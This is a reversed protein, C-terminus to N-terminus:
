LSPPHSREWDRMSDVFATRLAAPLADQFLVILTEIGDFHKSYYEMNPPRKEWRAATLHALRKHLNLRVEEADRPKPTKIKPFKAGFEPLTRRFHGVGVGDERTPGYFFDLLVRMHLLLAYRVAQGTTPHGDLTGNRHMQVYCRFHQVDFAFEKLAKKLQKKDFQM